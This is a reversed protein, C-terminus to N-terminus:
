ITISLKYIIFISINQKCIVYAYVKMNTEKFKTIGNAVNQIVKSVLIVTRKDNKDMQLGTVYKQPVVLALFFFFFSPPLPFLPSLPSFSLSSLPFLFPPPSSLLSLSPLSPLSLFPLSPFPLSPFPFSGPCIYRLFILSGVSSLKSTPFKEGVKQNQHQTHNHYRITIHPQIHNYTTTTTTHSNTLIIILFYHSSSYFFFFFLSYIFYYYIIWVKEYLGM